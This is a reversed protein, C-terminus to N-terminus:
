DEKILSNYLLRIVEDNLGSDAYTESNCGNCIVVFGYKDTPHFYMSSHIGYSAGNMGILEVGPIVNNFHVFSLGIKTGMQAERMIAESEETLVRRRRRSKGNNMHMIMYRALDPASIKLAASPNLLSTSYGLVYQSMKQSDVKHTKTHVVYHDKSYQGSHVLKANGLKSVDWVGHIRLPRLIHKEIYEDFRQGSVKEIVAGLIVYGLNSYDVGKDPQYNNWFQDYDKNIESNLLSFDSYDANRKLGSRHSLLMRVSILTEPFYPNRVSFDLYNNVDDDLSLKGKEVLQMVATGVFTKSVSAIFFYDDKQIPEGKRPNSVQPDYGFTESFVIKSDKVAVVALGINDYRKRISDIQTKIIENPVSGFTVSFLGLFAFLLFRKRKVAIMAHFVIM